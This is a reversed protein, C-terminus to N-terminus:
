SDDIEPWSRLLGVPKGDRVIVIPEDRAQDLIKSLGCFEAPSIM